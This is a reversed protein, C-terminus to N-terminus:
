SRKLSFLLPERAFLRLFFLELVSEYFFNKLIKLRKKRM